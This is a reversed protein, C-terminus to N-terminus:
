HCNPCRKNDWYVWGLNLSLSYTWFHLQSNGPFHRSRLKRPRQLRVAPLLHLCCKDMQKRQFTRGQLLAVALTGFHLIVLVLTCTGLDDNGEQRDVNSGGEDEESKSEEEPAVTGRWVCVTKDLYINVNILISNWDILWVQSLYRLFALSYSSGSSLMSSFHIGLLKSCSQWFLSLNNICM